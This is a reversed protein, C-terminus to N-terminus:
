LPKLYNYAFAMCPKGDVLVGSFLLELMGGEQDWGWNGSNTTPKLGIEYYLDDLSVYRQSLRMQNIKNEVKRLTEMDCQFVRGTHEEYALGMGTGVLMPTVNTKDGNDVKDQAISARVAEDKKKGLQEVVKARYDTLQQTALSAATTAVAIRQTSVKHSCAIAAVTVAGVAVAPAYHPAVIKAKRVIAEKKTETQPATNNSAELKKNAKIAGRAALVATTAVGTIGVATLIEPANAKLMQGGQKLLGNINM